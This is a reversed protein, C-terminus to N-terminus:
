FTRVALVHLNDFDKPCDAAYGNFYHVFWAYDDSSGSQSSSWYWNTGLGDMAAGSDLESIKKLAANIAERNEYIMCLETISPMYWGSAYSEPLNYADAYTNIFSFAPYSKEADAAGQADEARIVDWNDSGNTDGTSSDTCVTETFSITNGATGAPAWQLPTSSRHVGVGIPTGDNRIGAIVAVPLNTSDLATLEAAATTGDTLVIDGAKYRPAAADDTSVPDDASAAPHPRSDIPPQGGNDCATLSVTMLMSLILTLIKM